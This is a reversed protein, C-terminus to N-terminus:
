EVEICLVDHSIGPQILCLSSDVNGPSIDIVESICILSLFTKKLSYHIFSSSFLLLSFVLSSKLFITFMFFINQGFIPVIFSLFPLSRTSASSILFLHSSYVSSYQFSRFSPVLNSRHHPWGGLALYEPFCLWTPRLFCETVLAVSHSLIGTSSNLVRFSSAMLTNCEIHWCIPLGLLPWLIPFPWYDDWNGLLTTGFITSVM